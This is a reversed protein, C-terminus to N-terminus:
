ANRKMDYAIKQLKQKKVIKMFQKRSTLRVSSLFDPLLVVENEFGKKLAVLTDEYAKEKSDLHIIKENIPDKANTIDSLNEQTVEKDQNELM